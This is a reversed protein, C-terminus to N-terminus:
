LIKQSRQLRFRKQSKRNGPCNLPSGLFPEGNFAHKVSADNSFDKKNLIDCWGSSLNQFEYPRRASLELSLLVSWIIGIFRHPCIGCVKEPRDRDGGNELHCGLQKREKRQCSNLLVLKILSPHLDAVIVSAENGALSRLCGCVRIM